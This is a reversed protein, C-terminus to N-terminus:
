SDELQNDEEADSEHQHIATHPFPHARVSRGAKSGGKIPEEKATEEAEVKNKGKNAQQSSTNTSTKISQSSAQEEICKSLDPEYM